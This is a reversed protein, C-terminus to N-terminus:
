LRISKWDGKEFKWLFLASLLFLWFSISSWLGLTGLALYIGLFYALPLMIGYSVFLYSFFVFKIKGASRLASSFVMHYADGVQVMSVVVLAPYAESVLADLNTFQRIIQKGFIIFVIGMLGMLIASYYASRHVGMRALKVKGAGIAHGFITTAAVSFAFGPMFSITLTSLVIQSAAVSQMSIMASMKNFILFSLNTLSGELAAPLGIKLTESLVSFHISFGGLKAYELHNKQLSFVFFVSFGVFGAISSAIAAGEVGLAESGLNGYIFIWNFFINSTMTFIAAVMGVIPKGLGDYFGRFTYLLLYGMFGLFRIQLYKNAEVFLSEDETVFHIIYPSAHYGLITIAVGVLIGGLVVSSYIQGIAKFNKEGFRRSTLIQIGVSGNMLFSLVTFFAIGGVGTAAIAVDGLKGVMYTDSIQITTYSIMGFFVPLALQFIYKSFKSHKSNQILKKLIM